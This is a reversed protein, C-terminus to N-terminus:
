KGGRKQLIIGPVILAFVGLIFFSLIRAPETDATVLIFLVSLATAVITSVTIARNKLLTGSLTGCLGMMMLIIMTMDVRLIGEMGILSRLGFAAWILAYLGTSLIGFWMWIKGLMNTIETDPAKEKGKNLFPICVFGILSMAFWLLNWIPSGTRAWLLWIIVSTLSVLIGWLILPKGANKLITCRSREITESILRLSNEASFNNEM